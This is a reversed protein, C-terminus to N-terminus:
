QEGGGSSPALEYIICYEDQHVRVVQPESDLNRLFTQQPYHNREIGSYLIYRVDHRHAHDLFATAGSIQRPYRQFQLGSYYAIHPKRAMVIDQSAPGALRALVPGVDLIFLPRRYYYYKEIVMIDSIQYCFVGATVLGLALSGARPAKEEILTRLARLRALATSLLREVAHGLSSRRQGGEGCLLAFVIAYYAPLIPFSFRPQHYVTCMALFYSTAYTLLVAQRRTPPVFFLRLLGLALLLSTAHNLSYRLDFWLHHPINRLYWWVFHLPDHRIVQSLSTLRAAPTGDAQDGGYFEEVFINQLNRTALWRGTEAHNIGYWPAIAAVFVLLYVACTLLRRRWSWRGPNVLLWIALTAAPLILGNYRTLFALASAIAALILCPWSWREHAILVLAVLCLLMFLLDSSAKHAHMFFEYVLSGAITACIAVRRGYMRLLLRYTLILIAAACLLNLVIGSRYWDGGFLQVVAHVGVLVFSTFPGKYPYNLVSFEGAWLQQASVVLEAYFDSEVGIDGLPFYLLQVTLAAAVYVAAYLWPFLTDFRSRPTRSDLATRKVPDTSQPSSGPDPRQRKTM